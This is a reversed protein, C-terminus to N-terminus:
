AKSKLLRRAPWLLADLYNRPQAGSELGTPPYEGPHPRRYTGFILDYAPFLGAFNKDFHAPLASHHLRHYQPSNLLFSFRGFGLRINMHPIVHYYALLAYAGLVEPPAKFIVGVALYITLMKIGHEAWYHRSTTSANLATDSHHLSHMAWLAPIRHQARHFLYEMLDVAVAYLAFGAWFGPGSSPLKILGGGAANVAAVTFISLAPALLAQALMFIMTYGLNFGSATLPQQCAPALREIALGVLVVLLFVSVAIATSELDMETEERNVEWSIRLEALYYYRWQVVTAKKHM